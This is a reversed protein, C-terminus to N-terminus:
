LTSYMQNTYGAAANKGGMRSLKAQQTFGFAQRQADLRAAAENIAARREDSQIVDAASGSSVDVGTAAMVARQSGELGRAETDIHSAIDEGRALADAAQQDYGQGQLEGMKRAGRAAKASSSASLATQGAALGMSALMLATLAAM